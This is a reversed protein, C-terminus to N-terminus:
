LFFFSYTKDELGLAYSILSKFLTVFMFNCQLCPNRSSNLSVNFIEIIRTYSIAHINSDPVRFEAYINSYHFESSVM